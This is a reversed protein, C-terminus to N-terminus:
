ILWRLAVLKAFYGFANISTSILIWISQEHCIWTKGSLAGVISLTNGALIALWHFAFTVYCAKLNEIWHTSSIPFCVWIFTHHFWFSTHLLLINFHIVLTFTFFTLVKAWLMLITIKEDSEIYWWIFKQSNFTKSISLIWNKLLKQFCEFKRGNQDVM